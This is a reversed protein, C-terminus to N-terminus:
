VASDEKQQSYQSGALQCHWHHALLLVEALPQYIGFLCQYTCILAGVKVGEM